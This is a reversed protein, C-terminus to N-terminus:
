GVKKPLHLSMLRLGGQEVSPYQHAEGAPVLIWDGKSVKRTVGGTISTGTLNEGNRREDVLKGGTVLTGSGEMVYFLEAEGEHISAQQGMNRVELNINYPALRILNANASKAAVDAATVVTTVMISAQPQGAGRQGGGQAAPAAGQRAFSSITLGMVLGIALAAVTRM